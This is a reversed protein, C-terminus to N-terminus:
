RIGHSEFRRHKTQPEFPQLGSHASSTPHTPLTIPVAPAHDLRDAIQGSIHGEEELRERDDGLDLFSQVLRAVEDQARMLELRITTRQNSHLDPESESSTAAIYPPPSHFSPVMDVTFEVLRSESQAYLPLDIDTPLNPIIDASDYTRESFFSSISSSHSFSMEPSSDPHVQISDTGSNSSFSHDSDPSVILHTAKEALHDADLLDDAHKAEPEDVEDADLQGLLEKEFDDGDNAHASNSLPEPSVQPRPKQEFVRNFWAEAQANAEDVTKPKQKCLLTPAPPNSHPPIQLHINTSDHRHSRPKVVVSSLAPAKRMDSYYDKLDRKEAWEDFFKPLVETILLLVWYDVRPLRGSHIYPSFYRDKIRGNFSELHNTTRPVRSIPVGLLRAAEEQGALSWSRWFDRTKLYSQLYGLFALASSAQKKSLDDRQKGTNAHPKRM